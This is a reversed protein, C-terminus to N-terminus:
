KERGVEMFDRSDMKKLRQVTEMLDNELCLVAIVVESSGTLTAGYGVRGAADTSPETLSDIVSGAIGEVSGGQEAIKIAPVVVAHAAGAAMALVLAGQLGRNM